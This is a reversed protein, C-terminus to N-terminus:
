FPILLMQYVPNTAAMTLLNPTAIPPTQGLYAKVFKEDASPTKNKGSGTFVIKQLLTPTSEGNILGRRLGEALIPLKAPSSEDMFSILIGLKKDSVSKMTSPTILGNLKGTKTLAITSVSDLKNLAEVTTPPTVKVAELYIRSANQLRLTADDGATPSLLAQCLTNLNNWFAPTDTKFTDNLAKEELCTVGMEGKTLISEIGARAAFPSPPDGENMKYLTMADEFDGLNVLRQIRLAYLNDSSMNNAPTMVARLALDRVARTPTVAEPQSLFETIQEHSSHTWFDVGFGFNSRPSLTELNTTNNSNSSDQGAGKNEPAAKSLEDTGSQVPKIKSPLVNLPKPIVPTAADSTTGSIDPTKTAPVKEASPANQPTSIQAAAAMTGNGSVVVLCITYLFLTGAKM